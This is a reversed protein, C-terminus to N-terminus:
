ERKGNNRVRFYLRVIIGAVVLAFIGAIHQMRVTAIEVVLGGYYGPPALVNEPEDRLLLIIGGVVFPSALLLIGYPNDRPPRM